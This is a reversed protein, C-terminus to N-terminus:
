LKDSKFIFADLCEIIVVQIYKTIIIHSYFSFKLYMGAVRFCLAHSSPSKISNENRQAEEPLM